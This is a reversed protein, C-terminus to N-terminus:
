DHCWGTGVADHVPVGNVIICRYQASAEVNAFPHQVTIAQERQQNSQGGFRRSQQPQMMAPEQQRREHYGRNMMPALRAIMQGFNPRGRMQRHGYQPRMTPQMMNSRVSQQSAGSSTGGVHACQGAHAGSTMLQDGSNCALAPTAILASFAVVTAIAFKNFM